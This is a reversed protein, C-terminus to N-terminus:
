AADAAPSSLDEPSLMKWASRIHKATRTEEAGAALISALKMTKAVARLAGPKNAIARLLRKEDADTVGWAAILQCVDSAKPRGQVLRRGVRSFLQAFAPKRGEGELRAYVTENGLVAVGIGCRDHISRLQDFARTELHQGEDVLILGGTGRVKRAIAHSLKAQSREAIGLADCVENLMANTRSTCPEMTVMWVNPNTDRYHEAATTKGIGAGGAVVCLDCGNQAFTLMDIIRAATPLMQFGPMPPLTALVKARSHRADLWIQIEAGVKENNGQYKGGMWSTFTGYAVGSDRAVDTQNLRHEAMIQRVAARIADQREQPTEPTNGSHPETGNM